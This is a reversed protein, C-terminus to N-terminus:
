IDELDVQDPLAAAFCKFASPKMMQSFIYMRVDLSNKLDGNHIENRLIERVRDSTKKSFKSFAEFLDDDLSICIRKRERWSYSDIRM